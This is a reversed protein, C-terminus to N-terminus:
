NSAFDRMNWNPDADLMPYMARDFRPTFIIENNEGQEQLEDYFNVVNDIGFIQTILNELIKWIANSLEAPITNNKLYTVRDM